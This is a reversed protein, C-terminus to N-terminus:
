KTRMKLPLTIKVIVVYLLWSRKKRIDMLSYRSKRGILACDKQQFNGTGILVQQRDHEGVRSLM